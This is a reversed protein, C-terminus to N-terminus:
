WLLQDAYWGNSYLRKRDKDHRLKYMKRRESATGKPVKGEKELALYTPYDKYGIAGISALKTGNKYVDIKKGITKSPRVNVGIKKAKEKTYSSIKYM